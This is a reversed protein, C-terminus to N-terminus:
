TQHSLTVTANLGKDRRDCRMASIARTVRRSRLFSLFLDLTTEDTTDPRFAAQVVARVLSWGLRERAMGSLGSIVFFATRANSVGM